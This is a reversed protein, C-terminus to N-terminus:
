EQSITKTPKASLGEPRRSLEFPFVQGAQSFEGKMSSGDPKISGNFSATTRGDNLEFSVASGDLQVNKLELPEGKRGNIAITGSVKEGENQTLNVNVEAKSSESFIIKGVWIGSCEGTAFSSTVLLTVIMTAMVSQVTINRKM